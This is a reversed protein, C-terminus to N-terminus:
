EFIRKLPLEYRQKFNRVWQEEGHLDLVHLTLTSGDPSIGAWATGPTSTVIAALIALAHADRLEIPIALFDSRIPRNTLGLVIRAVGLNSRLVDLLVHAVLPALLYWHKLRARRPRVRASVATFFGGLLLGLVLHGTSLTRNLLLWMAVLLILFLPVFRKM